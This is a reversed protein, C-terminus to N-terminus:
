PGIRNEYLRPRIFGSKQEDFSKFFSPAPGVIPMSETQNALQSMSKIM